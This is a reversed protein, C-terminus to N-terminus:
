RLQQMIDQLSPPFSLFNLAVFAKPLHIGFLQPFGGHVRFGASKQLHFNLICYLCIFYEGNKHTVLNFWPSIKNIIVCQM